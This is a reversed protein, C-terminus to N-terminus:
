CDVRWPYIIRGALVVDGVRARRITPLRQGRVEPYRVLFRRRRENPGAVVEGNFGSRLVLGVDDPGGAAGGIAGVVLNIECSGGAERHRREGGGRIRRAELDLNVSRRVRTWGLLDDQESGGM